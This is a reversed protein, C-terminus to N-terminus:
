QMRLVLTSLSESHSCNVVAWNQGTSNGHLNISKLVLWPFINMPPCTAAVMRITFDPPACKRYWTGRSLILARKRPLYNFMDLEVSLIGSVQFERQPTASIFGGLVWSSTPETGPRAWHTQSLIQCQRSSHHLECICSPDPTATATTYVPLQLELEVGLRTGEMHQLHPGLFYFFLFIGSVTFYFMEIRHNNPYITYIYPTHCLTKIYVYIYSIIVMTLSIQVCEDSWVTANRPICTTLVGSRNEWCIEFLCYLIIFITVLSYM